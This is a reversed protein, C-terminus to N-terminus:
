DPKARYTCHNDPLMVPNKLNDRHINGPRDWSPHWGGKAIAKYDPM